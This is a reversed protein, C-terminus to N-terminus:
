RNLPDEGYDNSGHTGDRMLTVLFVIAIIIIIFPLITVMLFNTNIGFQSIILGLVFLVMAVAGPAIAFIGPMNMDQFRRVTVALIGISLVFGLIKDIFYSFSLKNKPNIDLAHDILDGVYLLIFFVVLNATIPFWYEKRTSRGSFDISKKWFDIYADKFSIHKVM